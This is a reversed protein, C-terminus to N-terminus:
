ALVGDLRHALPQALLQRALRLDRQDLGAGRVGLEEVPRRLHEAGVVHGPRDDVRELLRGVDGDVVDHQARERLLHLPTIRCTLTVSSSYVCVRWKWPAAALLRSRCRDASPRWRTKAESSGSPARNM